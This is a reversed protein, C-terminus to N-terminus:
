DISITLAFSFSITQEYNKGFISIPTSIVMLFNKAPEITLGPNLFLNEIEIHKKMTKMYNIGCIYQINGIYIGNDMNFFFDYSDSYLNKAIQIDIDTSLNKNYQLTSIIGIGTQSLCNKKTFDFNIGYIFALSFFNKEIPRYKIAWNLSSVNNPLIIGTEIKKNIGYTFRFDFENNFSSDYSNLRHNQLWYGIQKSISFSPEFEITNEPVTSTCYTALKSASIGGIQANTINLFYIFFISLLFSKKM